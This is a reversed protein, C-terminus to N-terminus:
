VIICVISGFPSLTCYIVTLVDCVCVRARACACACVCGFHPKQVPIFWGMSLCDEPCSRNTFASVPKRSTPPGRYLAHRHGSAQQSQPNSDRRHCPHRETTFTTHQWTSTEADPQDSTRLLGTSKPTDSHSRSAEIILLGQGVVPQQAM